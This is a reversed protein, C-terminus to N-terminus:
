FAMWIATIKVWHPSCYWDGAVQVFGSRWLRQALWCGFMGGISIFAIRRLRDRQVTDPDRIQERLVSWKRELVKLEVYQAELEQLVIQRLEVARRSDKVLAELSRWSAALGLEDGELGLNTTDLIETRIHAKREEAEQLRRQADSLEAM